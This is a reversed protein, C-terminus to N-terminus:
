GYLELRFGDIKNDNFKGSIENPLNVNIDLRRVQNEDFFSSSMKIARMEEGNVDLTGSNGGTIFKDTVIEYAYDYNYAPPLIDELPNEIYLKMGITSSNEYRKNGVPDTVSFSALSWYGSKELMSFNTTGILVSDQAQGNEPYLGIDQITGISSAFRIYASSAGDITPDKTDSNLSARITVVKDEESGGVVNVEIKTVKGPYTYDPFLNYVTFTLDERIQAVYRTGHMIRDRVFEYKRVSVSLLGETSEIIFGKDNTTTSTDSNLQHLQSNNGGTASTPDIFWGGLEAWDDKLTKTM